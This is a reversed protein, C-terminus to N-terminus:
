VKRKLKLKRILTSFMHVLSISSSTDNPSNNFRLFKTTLYYYLVGLDGVSGPLGVFLLGWLTRSTLTCHIRDDTSKGGSRGTSEGHSPVVTWQSRYDIRSAVGVTIRTTTYRLRTSFEFPTTGGVLPEGDKEGSLGTFRQVSTTQMTTFIVYM